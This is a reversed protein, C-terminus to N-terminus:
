TRYAIFFFLIYRSFQKSTKPKSMRISESSFGQTRSTFKLGLKAVSAGKSIVIFVFRIVSVKFIHPTLLNSRLFSDIFLILNLGFLPAKMVVCCYALPVPYPFDFCYVTLVCSAPLIGTRWLPALSMHICGWCNMIFGWTSYSISRM